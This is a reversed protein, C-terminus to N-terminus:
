RIPIVGWQLHIHVCLQLTGQLSQNKMQLMVIVINAKGTGVDVTSYKNFAFRYGSLWARKAEPILKVLEPFKELRKGM